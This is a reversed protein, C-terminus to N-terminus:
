RLAGFCVCALILCAIRTAPCYTPPRPLLLRLRRRLLLPLLLLALCPLM